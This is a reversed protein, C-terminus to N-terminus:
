YRWILNDIQFDQLNEINRKEMERGDGNEEKLRTKQLRPRVGYFVSRNMDALFALPVM